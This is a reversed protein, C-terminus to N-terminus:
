VKILFISETLGDEDIFERSLIGGNKTIVKASAINEKLCGVMAESIGLKKCEILALRLIETAYGKRRETPRVGYGIHGWGNVILLENLYHRINTMGVIKDEENIAFYTSASVHDIRIVEGFHERLKHDLWLDYDDYSSLGGSGNINSKYEFHEKIYLKAQEERKKNAIRM